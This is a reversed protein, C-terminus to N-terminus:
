KVETARYSEIEWQERNEVNNLFHRGAKNPQTKSGYFKYSKGNPAHFVWIYKTMTMDKTEISV